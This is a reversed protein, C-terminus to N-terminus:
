LLRYSICCLCVGSYCTSKTDFHKWVTSTRSITTPLKAYQHSTNMCILINTFLLLAMIKGSRNPIISSPSLQLTLTRLSSIYHVSVLYIINTKDKLNLLYQAMLLRIDDTSHMVDKSLSTEDFYLYYEVCFWQATIGPRRAQITMNGLVPIVDWRLLRLYYEISVQM